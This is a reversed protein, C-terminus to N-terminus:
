ARQKLLAQDLKAEIQDLRRMIHDLMGLASSTPNFAPQQGNGSPMQESYDEQLPPLKLESLLERLEVLSTKGFNPTRLLERETQTYIDRITDFSNGHILCNKLRVTLSLDRLPIALREEEPLDAMEALTADHERRQSNVKAEKSFKSPIYGHKKHFAKLAQPILAVRNEANWPDARFTPSYELLFARIASSIPAAGSKIGLMIAIQVQRRGDAWLKAAYACDDMDM